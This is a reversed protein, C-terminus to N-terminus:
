TVTEPLASRRRQWHLGCSLGLWALGSSGMLALGIDQVDPFREGTLGVVLWAVFFIGGAMTRMQRIHHLWTIRRVEAELYDDDQSLREYYRAESQARRRLAPDSTSHAAAYYFHAVRALQGDGFPWSPWVRM